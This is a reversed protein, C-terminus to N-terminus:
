GSNKSDTASVKESDPEDLVFTDQGITPNLVLRELFQEINQSPYDEPQQLWWGLIEIMAAVVVGSVMALPLDPNIQPRRIALDKTLQIWEDRLVSKASTTLLATWVKRNDQIYSSIVHSTARIDRQDANPVMCEMLKKMEIAAIEELLEEKSSYSRYFTPHSLNAAACLDRVSIQDLPKLKVMELM